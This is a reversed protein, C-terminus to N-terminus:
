ASQSFVEAPGVRQAPRGSLIVALVKRFGVIVEMAGLGPMAASEDPPHSGPLGRAPSRLRRQDPPACGDRARRYRM